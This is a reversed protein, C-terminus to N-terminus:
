LKAFLMSKTTLSCRRPTAIANTQRFLPIGRGSKTEDPARVETWQWLLEQSVLISNKVAEGIAGKHSFSLGKTTFPIRVYYM